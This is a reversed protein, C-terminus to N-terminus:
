FGMYLETEVIFNNYNPRYPNPQPSRVPIYNNLLYRVRFALGVRVDPIFTIGPGYDVINNYFERQTDGFGEVQIFLDLASYGYEFARVGDRVRLQLIWDNDYRSYYTLEGYINGIHKFPFKPRPAYEPKMGWTQYLESGVRFDGTWRRTLNQTLYYNYATGGEVYFFFPADQYPTLRLGADYIVGNDNYEAPAAGLAASGPSSATDGNLYVKGYGQFYKSLQIGFRVQSDFIGDNFRTQHYPDLYIDAFFPNPLLKTQSGGLSIMSERAEQVQKPKPSYNAVEQFKFFAKKNQQLDNYIYAIQLKIDYDNPKLQEVIQFCTLAEKYRKKDLLLYGYEAQADANQPYKRTIQIILILAQDPNTKKLKYYQDMQSNLDQSGSVKVARHSSHIRHHRLKPHKIRHPLVMASATVAIASLTFIGAGFCAKALSPFKNRLM